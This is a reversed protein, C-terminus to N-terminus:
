TVIRSFNLFQVTSVIACRKFVTMSESLIRTISPPVQTTLRVDASEPIDDHVIKGFNNKTESQLFEVM